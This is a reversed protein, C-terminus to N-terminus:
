YIIRRACTVPFLILRTGQESTQGDKAYLVGFRFHQPMKEPLGSLAPTLFHLDICPPLPRLLARVRLVNDLKLFQAQANKQRVVRM